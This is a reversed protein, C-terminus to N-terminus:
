GVAEKRRENLLCCVGNGPEQGLRFWRKELTQSKRKSVYREKM